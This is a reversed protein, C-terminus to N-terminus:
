GKMLSVSVASKGKPTVEVLFSVKDNEKIKDKLSKVHVFISEQSDLDKIFGYGKSENFFTVKGKRTKDVVEKPGTQKSVGIQIADQSISAKKMPDPPVSTINGNEDVYAIMDEFSQGKNAKREERREAKEKKRQNKKKENEEKNFSVQAKSM